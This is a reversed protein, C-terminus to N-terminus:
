FIGRVADVFECFDLLVIRDTIVGLREAIRRVEFDNRVASCFCFLYPVVFFVVVVVSFVKPYTAGHIKFIVVALSSLLSIGHRRITPFYVGM